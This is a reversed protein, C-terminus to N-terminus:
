DKKEPRRHRSESVQKGGSFMLKPKRLVKFQNNWVAFDSPTGAIDFLMGGEPAAVQIKVEKM